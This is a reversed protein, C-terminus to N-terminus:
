QPLSHTYKAARMNITRTNKAKSLLGDLGYGEVAFSGMVNGYTIARKLDKISTVQKNLGAIYGMIAGAYADGAGTPDAINELTYAPAAVIKSKYFLLSGHQNKKIILYPVGTEKQIKKACRALNDESRALLVAEEDNMVAVDVMKMMKIVSARKTSIWFDITDCMSMRVGGKGFKELLAINQDPDNNALYVYRSSAYTSPLTPSFGEIVNLKTSLTTRNSMTKDYKGEYRFTKGPRTILGDLTAHRALIKYYKDPLDTGVVAVLGIKAFHSASVAAYAAAGGLSDKFKKTPTTITDLAVTGFITLM